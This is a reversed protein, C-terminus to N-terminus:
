EPSRNPDALHVTVGGTEDVWGSWPDTRTTRVVRRRWQFGSRPTAQDALLDAITRSLLVASQPQAKTLRTEQADTAAPRRIEVEFAVVGALAAKEEPTLEGERGFEPADVEVKWSRVGASAADFLESLVLGAPLDPAVDRLELDWADWTGPPETRLDVMHDAGAPITLRSVVPVTTAPSWAHVAGTVPSRRLAFAQLGGVTVARQMPNRIRLRDPAPAEGDAPPPAAAAPLLELPLAPPALRRLSLSVPVPHRRGGAPGDLTFEVQGGVGSRTLRDYVLSLYEADGEYVLTFGRVPDITDRDAAGTGTFLDGLGALDPDAVFRAAGYGGVALEAYRIGDSSQRRVLERLRALRGPEFYPTARLALRTRYLAPDLGDGAPASGDRRLLVAQISPLGRVDDVRLLYADPLCYVTDRLPTPRFWGHQSSQWEPPAYNKDVAAFIPDNWESPPYDAELRREVTATRPLGPGPPWPTGVIRADAWAAWDQGASPGADARLEIGVEQGALHSLDAQVHATAGTYPKHVRLVENWVHAGGASHHEFVVFTVGDTAHAGGVFGIEAEFRADPPLLRGPLWGKITGQEVWMPHTRLARRTTGDELGIADSLIVFGTADGDNGNFPIEVGAVTNGGADTLQAGAWTGQPALALLDIVHPAPPPPPLLWDVEYTVVWEAPDEGRLSRVLAGQEDPLVVAEAEVRFAPGAPDDLPITLVTGFTLRKAKAAGYALAVGTVRVGFPRAGPVRGAVNEELKVTLHLAADRREFRVQPGPLWQSRAVVVQLQPLCRPEAAGAVPYAVGDVPPGGPLTPAGAVAVPAAASTDVRGGTLNQPAVLTVGIAGPAPTGPTRQPPGGAVTSTV